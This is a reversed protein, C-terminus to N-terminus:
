GTMNRVRACWLRAANRVANKWAPYEQGTNRATVANLVFVIAARDLDTVDLIILM